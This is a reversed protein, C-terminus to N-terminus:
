FFGRLFSAVVRGLDPLYYGGELLAYRKGDCKEESFEKIIRGIEEYDEMKLLGGWDKEYNDFGASVSVIDCKGSLFMKIEEIYEDRRSAQPNLIKIDKKNGLTNVNGDGFHLDFDVISIKKMKKESMIKKVSIAMNNFYCFGWASDSSAHHGPPRILAFAANGDCAIEAARIAGGASLLAVEYLMKDKQIKEVHTKTHVRLVDSESAPVGQIFKVATMEKVVNYITEIRGPAAAPNSAYIENYRPHYVIYM